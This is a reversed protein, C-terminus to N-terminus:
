KVQISMKIGFDKFNFDEFFNRNPESWFSRGVQVISSFKKPYAQQAPWSYLNFAMFVMNIFM